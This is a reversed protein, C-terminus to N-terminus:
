LQEEEKEKVNKDRLKIVDSHAYHGVSVNVEIHGGSLVILRMMSEVGVGQGGKNIIRHITNNGVSFENALGMITAGNDRRHNLYKQLITLLCIHLKDTNPTKIM